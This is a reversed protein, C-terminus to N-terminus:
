VAQRLLRNRLGHVRPSCHESGINMLFKQIVEVDFQLEEPDDINLAYLLMLMAVAHSYDKTGHLIIQGDLVMSIDVLDEGEKILLLGVSIGM